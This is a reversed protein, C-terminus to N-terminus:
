RALWAAAAGTAGPELEHLAQRAGAAAYIRATAQPAPAGLLALEGPACLGAFTELDGYRLAGPLFDQDELSRIGAFSWSWEVLTRELAGGALARALLAWPGARGLGALHVARVGSLGRAYAVATLADHVREALLTRNYGWTFGAYRDHREPDVPLRAEDAPRAAGTLLVDVGLLALGRALCEQAFGEDLVRTGGREDLLVVLEGKWVEPKRLEVPVREGGQGRVLVTGGAGERAVVAEPPPLGTHLLASLAGGVVRRFEVLDHEARDPLARAQAQAALLMRARPGPSAPRRHAGDFVSLEAPAIPVLEREVIPLQAELALHRAFWEYMMTRAPLNFNHPFEPWVRASVLEQRGFLRYLEKLEPLGKTELELTWDNAGSLGLPRPAFLAALEVNDTGVRLHSANECACGGQMSSSVMVAPFAAAPRGDLACLVFTQTGGGSAGSVGIRRPDVEPLGALFDLARLSNWTQLGFASLGWAESQADGFGAGHPLERSDAFGVMDYHFVVCGLRALEACRAQLHYRANSEFREAGSALEAQVEADSRECFRGGAWHGHPSLVAAHPGPGAPRYLSGSVLLGWGDDFFVREVGYGTREIRGHIV